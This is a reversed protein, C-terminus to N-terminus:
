TAAASLLEAPITTLLGSSPCMPDSSRTMLAAMPQSVVAKRGWSAGIPWSVRWDQRTKYISVCYEVADRRQRRTNPDCADVAGPLAMLAKLAPLVLDDPITAANSLVVPVDPHKWPGPVVALNPDDDLFPLETRLYYLRSSACALLAGLTLLLM